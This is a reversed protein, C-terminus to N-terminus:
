IQAHMHQATCHPPAAQKKFLKARNVPGRSGTLCLFLQSHSHLTVAPTITQSSFPTQLTHTHMIHTDTDTHKDFLWMWFMIIFVSRSLYKM